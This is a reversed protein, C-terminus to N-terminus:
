TKIKRGDLFVRNVFTGGCVAYDKAAMLDLIGQRNPDKGIAPTEVCFVEPRFREFDISKLIDFDLGETDISVLNPAGRFHEQMIDNINLLPMKLVKEIRYERGFKEGVTEAEERSFTSLVDGNAGGGIVYFDAEAAATLGIGAKYLRDEPRVSELRGWRAPNPEVLAGRCGNQYFLFTNSYIVPDFAGIDLYTPREIGLIRPSTFLNWLILDEGNQAHSLNGVKGQNIDYKRMGVAGVFGGGLTGLVFSGSLHRRIGQFFQRRDM